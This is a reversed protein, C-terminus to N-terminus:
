FGLMSAMPVTVEGMMLGVWARAFRMSTGLPLPASVPPLVRGTPEGRSMWAFGPAAGTRLNDIQHADSISRRNALVCTLLDPFPLGAEMRFDALLLFHLMISGIRGERGTVLGTLEADSVQTM